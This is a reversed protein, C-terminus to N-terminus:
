NVDEVFMVEERIVGQKSRQPGRGRMMGAHGVAAGAM